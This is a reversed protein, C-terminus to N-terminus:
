PDLYYPEQLAADEFDVDTSCKWHGSHYGQARRGSDSMGSRSSITSVAPLGGESAEWLTEAYPYELFFWHM